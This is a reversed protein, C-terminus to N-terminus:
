RPYMVGLIKPDKSGTVKSLNNTKNEICSKALWAFAAAEVQQPPIGLKETSSITLNFKKELNQILFKNKSGGGCVYIEHYNPCFDTISKHISSSTLELLTRQIDQKRKKAQFFKAVWNLNFLERGTSKPPNKKFFPDKLMKSLISKDVNGTKAWSGNTDYARGLKKQCWGDMLINGPGCDFGTILGNKKIFSVNSIGGINLIVRNKQNSHFTNQHFAPVLPAGNGGAVIDRNRFDNIVTINTKEALFHGSGLQISYGKEPRHRITQGHYGIAVIKESSLNNKKLVKQILNSTIKAHMLGLQYSEELDNQKAKSLDLFLKKQTISYKKQIFDLVKLKNKTLDVLITDIGDLSTGSM